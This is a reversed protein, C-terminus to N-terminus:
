SFAPLPLVVKFESGLTTSSALSVDGGMKHMALRAKYLGLGHHGTQNSGKVFLEFLNDKIAMPVGKADDLLRIDICGQIESASLQITVQEGRRADIANQLLEHLVTKLLWKDAFCRQPLPGRWQLFCLQPPFAQLCEDILARLDVTELHIGHMRINGAECVSLNLQDLDTVSTELLAMLQQRTKPDDEQTLLDALGKLKTIPTRLDHSSRYLLQDLEANVQSLAQTREQVKNELLANILEIKSKQEALLKTSERKNRYALWGLAAIVILTVVTGILINRRDNAIDIEAEQLANTSKLLAIERQRTENQYKADLESLKAFNDKNLIQQNIKNLTDMAVFAQQYDGLAASVKALNSYVNVVLALDPATGMSELAMQVYQMALEPNGMKFHAAGINNLFFPAPKGDKQQSLAIAKQYGEIALEFEGRDQYINAINNQTRAMGSLYNVEAALAISTHYAQMASDSKGQKLLANGLSNLADAQGSISRADLYAQYGLEAYHQAFAYQGINKYDFGLWLNVLGICANDRLYQYGPLVLLLETASRSYQGQTAYAFALATRMVLREQPAYADAADAMRAELIPIISDPRHSREYAPTGAGRLLPDQALSHPQAITFSPFVLLLTLGLLLSRMGVGFPRVQQDGIVQFAKRM